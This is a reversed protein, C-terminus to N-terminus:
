KEVTITVGSKFEFVLYETFVTVKTLWRKVLKEDFTLQKPQSRIFSQLEKIRSQYEEKATDDM